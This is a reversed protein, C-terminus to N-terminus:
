ENLPLIKGFEKWANDNKYLELSETPVYLTYESLSKYYDYFTTKVYEGSVDLYVVEPPTIARCIVKEGAPNEPGRKALARNFVKKTTEPFDVNPFFPCSYDYIYEIGEM